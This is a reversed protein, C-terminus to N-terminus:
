GDGGSKLSSGIAEQQKVQLVHSGVLLVKSILHYQPLNMPSKLLGRCAAHRCEARRGENIGGTRRRNQCSVAEGFVCLSIFPRPSPAAHAEPAVAKQRLACPESVVWHFSPPFPSFFHLPPLSSFLPLHPSFSLLSSPPSLSLCLGESKCSEGETLALQNPM